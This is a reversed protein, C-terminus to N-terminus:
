SWVSTSTCMVSHKHYSMVATQVDCLVQNLKSAFVRASAAVEAAEAAAAVAAASAAEATELGKPAKGTGGHLLEGSAKAVTAGAGQGRMDKEKRKGGKTLEPPLSTFVKRSANQM